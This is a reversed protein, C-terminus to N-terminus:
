QPLGPAPFSATMAVVENRVKALADEDSRKAAEIADDMWAAIQRMEDPGMGRSTVSPTGLRLGSPDFPKRPDYPVTNYNTEIGARDLAQAALKGPIDKSTLDILLLHNDTGGSVLDFGREILAEALAQANLVIQHAYDRFEATAAERLATAIGATTHNHPGGQLGPFVARDLAKAHVEDSMIMAGRPGRLTKHTTTTVIEAHGVPSPHAGGAVLGAIHAIDAVLVADVERAIEAFAPFDITRPIATGGCFILKPREKTAIERVQDMDIRGTDRRVDYQVPRFWKGTVSVSWGHTLHGGMPLSMGMVTDGPSCLAMYVALNAPSGSYPQVNAHDVGFLSKARDIALQEVQDILQQGEYYRKGPYGESYKNTLATGTAELVAASVYNESAILRIVEFQRQEEADVLGALDPDAAHLAPHRQNSTM